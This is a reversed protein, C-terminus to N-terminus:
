RRLEPTMAQSASTIALMTLTSAISTRNGVDNLMAPESATFL